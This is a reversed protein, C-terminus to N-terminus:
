PRVRVAAPAPMRFPARPRVPTRRRARVPAGAPLRLGMFAVAEFTGFWIWTAKTGLLDLTAGFILISALVGLLALALRATAEDGCRLARVRARWLGQWHAVLMAGLVLLGVVGLEALTGLYINHAARNGRSHMRGFQPDVKATLMYQYFADAFGGYAQGQLPKDEVMAMAVRWIDTRGSLGDEEAASYRSTLRDMTAQPVMVPLVLALVVAGVV